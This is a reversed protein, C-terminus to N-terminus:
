QVYTSTPWLWTAAKNKLTKKISNELLKKDWAYWSLTLPVSCDPIRCHESSELKECHSSLFEWRIRTLVIKQYIKHVSSRTTINLTNCCVLISELILRSRWKLHITSLLCKWFSFYRCFFWSDDSTEAVMSCDDFETMIFINLIILDNRFLPSRWLRM